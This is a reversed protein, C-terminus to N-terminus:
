GDSRGGNLYREAIAVAERVSVLAHAGENLPQTAPLAAIERLAEVARRERQQRAVLAAATKQNVGMLRGHTFGPRCEDDFDRVPGCKGCNECVYHAILAAARRRDPRAMGAGAASQRPLEAM